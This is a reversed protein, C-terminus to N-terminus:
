NAKLLFILCGVCSCIGDNRLKACSELRGENKRASLVSTKHAVLELGCNSLDQSKGKKYTNQREWGLRRVGM